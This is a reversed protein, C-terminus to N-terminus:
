CDTDCKDKGIYDPKPEITYSLSAKLSTSMILPKLEKINRM